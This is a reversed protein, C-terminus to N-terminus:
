CVYMMFSSFKQLNTMVVYLNYDNLLQKSMRCAGFLAYPLVRRDMKTLLELM